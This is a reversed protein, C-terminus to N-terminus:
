ALATSGPARCETYKAPRKLDHVIDTRGHALQAAEVDKRTKREMHYVFSRQYQLVSVFQYAACICDWYKNVFDSIHIERPLTLITAHVHTHIRLECIDLRGIDGFGLGSVRLLDDQAM